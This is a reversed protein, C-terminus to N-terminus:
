NKIGAQGPKVPKGMVTGFTIEARKFSRLFTPYERMVTPPVKTDGTIKPIMKKTIKKNLYMQFKEWNTHQRIVEKGKKILIRDLYLLGNNNRRFIVREVRTQDKLNRRSEKLFRFFTLTNYNSKQAMKKVEREFLM